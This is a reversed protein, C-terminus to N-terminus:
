QRKRDFIEIVGSDEDERIQVGRKPALEMGGGGGPRGTLKLVYSSPIAFNLNQGGAQYFTTVGVVEGAGNLVPGGSSGPSIPATIQYVNVGTPMARRGSIVGTSLTKELGRPNGIAVIEEGVEPATGQLALPSGKGASPVVLLALDTDEDVAKVREVTVVVDNAKVKIEAAEEIVHHNTVVERGDDVYFGTGISLPRNYADMSLVVVVSDKANRFVTQADLAMARHPTTLAVLMACLLWVAARPRRSPTSAMAAPSPLPFVRPLDHLRSM